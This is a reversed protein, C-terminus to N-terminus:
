RDLADKPDFALKSKRLIAEFEKEYSRQQHHEAQHAIYERVADRNSSSVSFAGYGEQWAFEPRQEHLWRSSNAKLIQVAKAFTIDSPLAILLHM